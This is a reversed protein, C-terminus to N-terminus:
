KNTIGRRKKFRNELINVMEYMLFAVIALIIVGMMVLDMKFVQSGYVILYGIGARSVLFEGVIVGVWTLGINIKVISIINPYNSPLILKTLIQWKTAKFSKLMRLKEDEVQIFDLYATIITLVLSISMAVVVIGEIGTGAWIILIPALATKPLANLVVLFPDLVKALLPYWWLAVAILLGITTGLVLGIITELVSIGLHRFLENNMLYQILLKGISLPSSFLFEDIIKFRSCLEWILIFCILVLFQLFVIKRKEKKMMMYYVNNKKM